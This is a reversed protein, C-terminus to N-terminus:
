AFRTRSKRRSSGCSKCVNGNRSVLQCYHAKVHALAGYGDFRSKTRWDPHDFPESIRLLRM